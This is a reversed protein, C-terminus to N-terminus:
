KKSEVAANAYSQFVQAFADRASMEQLRWIGLPPDFRLEEFVYRAEKIEYQQKDRTAPSMLYEAANFPIRMPIVLIRGGGRVSRVEGDAPGGICVGTNPEPYWAPDAM